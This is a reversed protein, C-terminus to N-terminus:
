DITEKKHTNDRGSKLMLTSTAECFTNPVMAKEETKQFLKLVVPILDDKFAQYFESTFDDPGFSKPTKSLQKM